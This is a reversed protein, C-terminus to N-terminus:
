LSMSLRSWLSRNEANKMMTKEGTTTTRLKLHGFLVVEPKVRGAHSPLLIRHEL